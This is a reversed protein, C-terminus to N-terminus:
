LFRKMPVNYFSSNFNLKNIKAGGRLVNPDSDLGLFANDSSSGVSKSSIIVSTYLEKLAAILIDRIGEFSDVHEILFDSYENNRVLVRNLTEYLDKTKEDLKQIILRDLLHINKSIYTNFFYNANQIKETINILRDLLSNESPAPAAHAVDRPRAGNNYDNSHASYFSVDSSNDSSDSDSDSDSDINIPELESYNNGFDFAPSNNSRASSINSRYQVNQSPTLHHRDLVDNQDEKEEANKVNRISTIPMRRVTGLQSLRPANVNPIDPNKFKRQGKWVEMAKKKFLKNRLQHEKRMLDHTYGTNEDEVVFDSLTPHILGNNFEKYGATRKIRNIITDISNPDFENRMLFTRTMIFNRTKRARIDSLVIKKLAENFGKNALMERQRGTLKEYFVPEGKGSGGRLVLRDHQQWLSVLKIVERHISEIQNMYNSTKEEVDKTTLTLNFSAMQPNNSRNRMNSTAITQVKKSAAIISNPDYQSVKTNPLLPM